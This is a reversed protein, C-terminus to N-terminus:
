SVESRRESSKAMKRMMVVTREREEEGQLLRRIREIEM